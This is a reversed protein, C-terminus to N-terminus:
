DHGENFDKVLRKPARALWAATLVEGLDPLDIEDLAILFGRYGDFHPTAFAWQPCSALWQEKSELDATRIGLIAGPPAAPGLAALDGPRLPREWAFTKGAVAWAPQGYNVSREVAPLAAALTAVDDWTAM